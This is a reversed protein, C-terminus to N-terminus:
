VSAVFEQAASYATTLKIDDDASNDVQALQDRLKALALALRKECDPVMRRTEALVEEQKRVDHEDASKARMAAIKQEQKVAEQEYAGIEKKLRKCSDTSLKM